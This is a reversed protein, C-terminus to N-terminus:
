NGNEKRKIIKIINDKIIISKDDLIITKKTEININNKINSTQNVFYLGGTKLDITYIKGGFTTISIKNQDVNISAPAREMDRTINRLGLTVIEGYSTIIYITFNNEYAFIPIGHFQIGKKRELLGFPSAFISNEVELIKEDSKKPIWISKDIGSIEIGSKLDFIALIKKLKIEKEIIESTLNVIYSNEVSSLDLNIKEYPTELYFKGPPFEMKDKLVIKEGNLTAEGTYGIFKVEVWKDPVKKISQGIPLNVPIKFEVNDKLIKIILNTSWDFFAANVIEGYSDYLKCNNGLLYIKRNFSDNFIKNILNKYNSVADSYKINDFNINIKTSDISIELLKSNTSPPTEIDTYKYLEYFINSFM